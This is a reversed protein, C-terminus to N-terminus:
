VHGEAVRRLLRRAGEARERARGVARVAEAELASARAAAAEGRALEEAACHFEVLIEAHHSQQASLAPPEQPEVVAAKRGFM